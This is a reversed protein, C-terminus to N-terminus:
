FDFPNPIALESSNLYNKVKLDANSYNPISSFSHSSSTSPRYSSYLSSSQSVSAHQGKPLLLPFPAWQPHITLSLLSTHNIQASKSDVDHPHSGPVSSLWFTSIKTQKTRTWINASQRSRWCRGRGEPNGKDRCHM